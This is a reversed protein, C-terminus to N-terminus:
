RMVVTTTLMIVLETKKHQRDQHSFAWGIAPIDGLLPVKTITDETKESILGGLVITSRDQFRVMTDNERVPFHPFDSRSEPQTPMRHFTSGNARAGMPGM